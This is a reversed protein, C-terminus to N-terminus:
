AVEVKSHPVYVECVDDTHLGLVECLGPSLDTTRGTDEHPGWDVPQVGSMIAGTLPNRVVVRHEQLWERSTVAYDWRAAIYFADPNLRRALGIKGIPRWLFLDAPFKSVENPEILALGEDIAVGTDAPGGFWSMKGTLKIM